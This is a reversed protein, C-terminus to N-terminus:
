VGRVEVSNMKQLRVVNAMARFSAQQWKLSSRYLILGPINQRHLDGIVRIIPPVTSSNMYDLSSFDMELSYGNQAATKVAGNLYTDLVAAPDADVSKGVWKLLLRQGDADVSADIKLNGQELSQMFVNVADNYRELRM